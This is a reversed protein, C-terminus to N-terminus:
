EITSIHATTSGPVSVLFPKLGGEAELPLPVGVPWTGGTAQDVGRITGPGTGAFTITAKKIGGPRIRKCTATSLATTTAAVLHLLTDTEVKHVIATEQTTENVIYDGISIETLFLTDTGVVKKGTSTLTGTLATSIPLWIANSAAINYFKPVGRQIISM